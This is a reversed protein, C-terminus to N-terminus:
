GEQVICQEACVIQRGVIGIVLVQDGRSEAHHIVESELEFAAATWDLGEGDVM